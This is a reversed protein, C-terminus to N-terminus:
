KIITRRKDIGKYMHVSARRAIPTYRNGTLVSLINNKVM